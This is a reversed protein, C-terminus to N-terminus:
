DTLRRTMMFKSIDEAFGALEFAVRYGLTEYLPRAQFSFTELYVLTCGREAARAEFARVLRTGLGTRRSAPAVWLQQLECCAGWTRGVAGGVVREGQRAFVALGRVDGLPAAAHNADDLGQDVIAADEAPIADHLTLHTTEDVMVGEGQAFRYIFDETARGHLEAPERRLLRFGAKELVRVSPTNQTDVSALVPLVGFRRGLEALLWVVAETAYGCGWAPPMLKYGIWLAGDAFRTAQLTGICIGAARERIAWNLWIQDSGAPAGEAFRMFEARMAALSQPPREPIFPYIRLDQAADYLEEAHAERLPEFVLRPGAVTTM